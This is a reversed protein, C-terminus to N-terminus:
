SLYRTYTLLCVTFWYSKNWSAVSSIDIHRLAPNLSSGDMNSIRVYVLPVGGSPGEPQGRYAWFLAHLPHGEKPQLGGEEPLAGAEGQM